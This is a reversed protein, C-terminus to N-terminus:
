QNMGSPDAPENCELVFILQYSPYMRMDIAGHAAHNGAMVADRAADPAGLDAAEIAPDVENWVGLVAEGLLAMLSAGKDRPM